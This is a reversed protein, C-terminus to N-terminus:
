DKVERVAAAHGTVPIPFGILGPVLVPVELKVDATIYGPAGLPCTITADGQWASPLDSLGAQACAGAADGTAATAARVAEDAANGALTYTYGLLVCQWMLVLTILITPLMGLFEIAVQGSDSRLRLRDSRLRIGGRRFRGGESRFRFRDSLFLPGASRLRFGDSRVRLRRRGRTVARASM